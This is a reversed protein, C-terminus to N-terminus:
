VGSAFLAALELEDEALAIIFPIDDEELDTPLIIEIPSAEQQPAEDLPLPESILAQLPEGELPIELPPSEIIIEGPKRGKLMVVDFIDTKVSPTIVPISIFPALAEAFKGRVEREKFSEQRVPPLKEPEAKLQIQPQPEPSPPPRYPRKKKFPEVRPVGKKKRYVRGPGGAAIRDEVPTRPFYGIPM